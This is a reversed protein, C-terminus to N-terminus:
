KAGQHARTETTEEIIKAKERGRMMTPLEVMRYAFESVLATAVAWTLFIEANYAPDFSAGFFKAYNIWLYQVLYIMPVHSLYLTFSRSGFWGILPQLMAAPIISNKGISAITILTVFVATLLIHYPALLFWDMKRLMQLAFISIILPISISILVARSLLKINRLKEFIDYRSNVLYLMVGGAIPILHFPSSGLMSWTFSITMAVGMALMRSRFSRCALLVIPLTLYFQEELSLSWYVAFMNPPMEPIKYYINIFNFLAAVAAYLNGLMYEPSTISFVALYILIWFAATPTIRFFRKTFFAYLVEKTGTKEHLSRDLKPILTSSIVFGSIALFLLVGETGGSYKMMFSLTPVTWLWLLSIHQYMTGVVAVARLRDIEVNRKM